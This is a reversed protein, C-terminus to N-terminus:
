EGHREAARMAATEDKDKGTLQRHIRVADIQRGERLAREREAELAARESASLAPGRAGQAQGGVDREAPPTAARPATLRAFLRLAVLAALTTLIVRLM